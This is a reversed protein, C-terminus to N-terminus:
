ATEELPDGAVAAVDVVPKAVGDPVLLEDGLARVPDDVSRREREVADVVLADEGASVGVGRVHVVFDRVISATDHGAVRECYSRADAAAPGAPRWELHVAHPFRRQLRGMADDVRGPDTLTVSLFSDVLAEHAPDSLLAELTGSVTALRRRVPAPVFEVAGLGAATLEVLWSGKTHHQESFSYALPSGSYRVGDALRQRGHLHGLAVYDFGDLAGLPVDSAGGVSIDRESDSAEGGRVFAHALVLSRTRTRTALDRRCRDLMGRLVAEHGRGPAPDLLPRVADPELYPVAYVALERGDLPLLVPDAAGRPDCRVHVGARAMLRAGFGLRRASDHNGSIVVVQAGAGALRALADDCLAVADVGPLARDYVDGAVAVVDVRESCVVEVLHDVYGAQADLLDVRHFSRGLHWDSTHLVRM